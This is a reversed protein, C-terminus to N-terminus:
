IIVINNYTAMTVMEGTVNVMPHCVIGGVSLLSLSVFHLVPRGHPPPYHLVRRSVLCYHLNCLRLPRNLQHVSQFMLGSVSTIIVVATMENATVITVM